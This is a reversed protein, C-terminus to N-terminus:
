DGESINCYVWIDFYSEKGDRMIKVLHFGSEKFAKEKEDTNVNIYYIYIRDHKHVSQIKKLTELLITVGVPNNFFFINYDEYHEFKEASGQYIYETSIKNKKLNNCCVDYLHQNYEVGGVRM